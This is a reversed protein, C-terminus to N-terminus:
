GRSVCIRTPDQVVVRMRGGLKINGQIWARLGTGGMIRPGYNANVTRNVKGQIPDAAGPLHIAIPVDHDAFYRAFDVPVNFFGQRFYTQGISVFFHPGQPTKTSTIALSTPEARLTEGISRTSSSNSPILAETKEPKGREEGGNWAPKLQAIIDDELAAAPNVLFRGVRQVRPDAFGFIEVANSELLAELIKGRVKINTRQSDGPKLYGYLRQRLTRATKGVYRVDGGAVFTYLAPVADAMVRLDLALGSESIRWSGIEHFGIELLANLGLKDHAPDTM